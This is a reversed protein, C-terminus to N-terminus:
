SKTTEALSMLAVTLTPDQLDEVPTPDPRGMDTHQPQPIHYECLRRRRLWRQIFLRRLLRCLLRAQRPESM